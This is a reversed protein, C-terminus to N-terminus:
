LRAPIDVEGPSIWFLDRVRRDAATLRFVRQRQGSRARERRRRTVQRPAMMMAPWGM